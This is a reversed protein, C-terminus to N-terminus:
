FDIGLRVSFYLKTRHALGTYTYVPAAPTGGISYSEDLYDRLTLGVGLNLGCKQSLGLRYGVTPSFYIGNGIDSFQYGIRADVFPTFRGFVLDARGEAYLPFTYSQETPNYLLGIGAGVFWTPNIQYGHTTTGGVYYADHWLPGTASRDIHTISNNWDIFGRYGRQPRAASASLATLLALITYIAIRKM